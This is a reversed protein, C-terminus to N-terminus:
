RWWRCVGHGGSEDALLTEGGLGALDAPAVVCHHGLAGLPGLQVPDERPGLPDLPGIPGLPGLPGAAGLPGILGLPELFSLLGLPDRKAEAGDRMALPAVPTILRMAAHAGAHAAAHQRNVAVADDIADLVAEAAHVTHVLPECVVVAVTGIVLLELDVAALLAAVAVVEGRLVDADARPVWLVAVADADVAIVLVARLVVQPAGLRVCVLSLGVAAAVGLVVGVGLAVVAHLVPGILSHLGGRAARVLAAHVAALLIGNAESLVWRAARAAYQGRLELARTALAGHQRRKRFRGHHIPRASTGGHCRRYQCLFVLFISIAVGRGSLCADALCLFSDWRTYVRLQRRLRRCQRCRCM